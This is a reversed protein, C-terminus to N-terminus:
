TGVEMWVKVKIFPVSKKKKQATSVSTKHTVQKLSQRGPRFFEVNKELIINQM